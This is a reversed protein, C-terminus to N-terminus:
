SLPGVSHNVETRQKQSGPCDLASIPWLPPQAQQRPGKVPIQTGRKSHMMRPSMFGETGPDLLPPPTLSSRPLVCLLYPGDVVDTCCFHKVWPETVPSKRLLSKTQHQYTCSWVRQRHPSFNWKCEPEMHAGQKESKIVWQGHLQISCGTLHNEEIGQWAASLFVSQRRNCLRSTKRM